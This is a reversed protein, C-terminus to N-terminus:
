KTRWRKLWIKFIMKAPMQLPIWLRLTFDCCRRLAAGVALLLGPPCRSLDQACAGGAGGEGPAPPPQPKSGIKLNLYLKSSEERILALQSILKPYPGRVSWGLRALCPDRPQPLARLSQFCSGSWLVHETSPVCDSLCLSCRTPLPRRHAEVSVGGCLVQREHGTAQASFARLRSLLDASAAVGSERAVGADRRTSTLWRGFLRVRWVKRFNHAFAPAFGLPSSTDWTTDGFRVQGLEPVSGGLRAVARSLCTLFSSPRLGQPARTSRWKHLAKLARQVSVYLLDSSHGLLFVQQLDVSEHGGTSGKVAQRVSRLLCSVYDKTPVHGGLLAGWSVVPSLVLSAVSAKFSHSCRLAALRRALLQCKRLRKGEDDSAARGCGGVSVGLINVLFSPEWGANEFEVFAPVTRAWVQTKANNNRNRTLRCFDEWVGLAQQLSSLSSAVLTRDDLFLFARSDPVVRLQRRLPLLLCLMLACPSWPDGQPLGLPRVIPRPSVADGFCVWRTHASWQAGLLTCVSSPVGLQRFIHVCLDADCSDFCKTFDLCVGYPYDHESYEQHLSILCEYVDLVQHRDFLRQLGVSLHRLRVSSWVRYIIPGISIPRLDGLGPISGKKNKPLFKVVWHACNPPWVGQVECELLFQCLRNLFIDPLQSIMDSSWGDPGSAKGKMRRLAQRIDQITIDPLPEFGMAPPFDASFFQCYDLISCQHEQIGFVQTWFDRLSEVARNRITLLDGSENQVVFPIAIDQRLWQCAGPLTHVRANWKSLADRSQKEIM